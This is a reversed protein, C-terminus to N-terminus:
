SISQTAEICHFETIGKRAPSFFNQSPYHSLLFFVKELLDIKFLTSLPTSSCPIIRKSSNIGPEQFAKQVKWHM